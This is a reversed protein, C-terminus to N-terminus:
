TTSWFHSVPVGLYYALIELQPLSPVQDGFEWAEIDEPAVQLVRACDDLSRGADLRADRLLVGIMKGRIRYAEAHDVQHETGARERAKELRNSSNGFNM